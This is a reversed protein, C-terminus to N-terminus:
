TSHLSLLTLIIISLILFSLGTVLIFGTKMKEQAKQARYDAFSEYRRNAKSRFLMLFSQMGYVIMDFTGENSAFILLGFGTFLVATIFTSDNLVRLLEKTDTQKFGDCSIFVVFSLVIGVLYSIIYKKM